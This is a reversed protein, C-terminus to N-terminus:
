KAYKLKIREYLERDTKERELRPNYEEDTEERVTTLEGEILFDDTPVYLNFIAESTGVEVALRELYGIAESITVGCMEYPNFETYQKILKKM